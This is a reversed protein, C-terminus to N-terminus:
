RLSVRLTVALRLFQEYVLFIFASTSCTQFLKPGLGKLLGTPGENHVINTLVAMIGVDSAGKARARSQVVQLPYTLVTAIAKALAGMMFSQFPTLFSHRRLVRQRLREYVKRSCCKVASIGHWTQSWHPPFCQAHWLVDHAMTLRTLVVPM